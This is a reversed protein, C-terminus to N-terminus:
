RRAIIFGFVVHLGGFGGLLATGWSFPCFLAVAGVLMFCMGMLPVVRVSYRRRDGGTGYLLFGLEPFQAPLGQQYLVVTLLAGVLLPLRFEVRIEPGARFAVSAAGFRGQAEHHM